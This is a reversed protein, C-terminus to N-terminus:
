RFYKVGSEFIKQDKEGIINKFVEEGIRESHGMKGFVRGDASTIGEVAYFSGNPNFEIDYTAENNFDVYQTAVQGNAILKRMVDESAVFKGEGHSIAINHIDGVNTQALWPSKNSSIRTRAIKAQHRGINNYTLTPASESPVRIEGYPVLGLKILVQFGNCIGLMLGDKQTLFENIAEQVRPNRFVTAIFKGSGDPEDGASFGGPLMIIQSSKIENVITDISDEIDKYTLNKFVRINANAGAREFASASDYECNTGPFAPIFVRPTAISLSSKKAEGQSIYSITEIKSKVEETKTPFIPELTSCHAKYLEDLALEEGKIFISAEKVTSGLVVYNYGELMSLDDNALELVINGYSAEFLKDDTFAKEAEESFKFGIKNGFAMKSIAEGVGAFGLAYTSLVKNGHILERVKDLNRKLEEFDVVDNEAKNVCLMVVKSDAKKFEPSVVKKADVTDVAFSVLTPPVEIDKFTGSMSDKGGIAPIEFKSQAYFAGLLASFPKGWKEPNNGLKEFYEQFTLRTTSYNGGIAVLKCVSEVVAYLAGHFPSWKGVKPNYGYTMITSTNTEGGLVPIKAVMGQTPTAQYKGGFPMLVTNGGITNDFMEVLGKQSCVNLDSLVKIFKDKMSACKVDKVIKNSSFFTNEEDVKTVHVDTTQKVGNTDLFERNIDVIAKGNWFMRLYGTDTVTAVHTAELNEEVALQIFKDKNEKKIAVAMREQSESIALETGDLGDYKKPVLDLNIDLSDAIEGIAVCVGGAGFDNCRKIMQAVEKNRFFRQIKRENPADGKQVEASCTLISEESHEKSSGTAGGCGDRGTKGGLLVIVDGAEPRERVVNGKPAAAIVAGIEMRKAVFNEDYVEAVQGTTLGIQNGYSSYGHAAETTIKRQMLKGPLTDELTTRPDASGTVRMAQYVYSRGSLPDRIAGGLCTAAGGFPEIETPHNHTENKFMVLYKEMKGDVEVDVNISCANIEESEDLDNLKGNKKLEKVAVTAIDMLCIDKHRNVYVNDRSNLYMQYAEKVIDNFKGDEIKVNEIETMFTTHRCHDSWYTDLVKIETITPNRKETDKFYKQVHQLDGLTMALGKESVFTRLGDEDLDIFGDLVEVTTPIETEMKLTEPKELSAERSDVPNICYDKIKSFEEDTIKGSLIYVKATNIAPRIGQNVIQVCQAAWDGRQDYQGPLFEIAFVREDNLKPIEEYYVVDLNPESFITKAANEYVEESIGEVDYRNLIRLNEINDIHLSEVLDKKLAKAELDFGERKEVLVRRVMSDKNETNLM